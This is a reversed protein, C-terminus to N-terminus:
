NKAFLTLALSRPSGSCFNPQGHSLKMLVVSIRQTTRLQRPCPHRRISAGTLLMITRWEDNAATPLNLMMVLKLVSTRACSLFWGRWRKRHKRHKRHRRHRRHRSLKRRQGEACPVPVTSWSSRLSLAFCLIFSLGILLLKSWQM